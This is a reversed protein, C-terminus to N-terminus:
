SFLVHRLWGHIIYCISILWPPLHVDGVGLARWCRQDDWSNGRPPGILSRRASFSINNQLFAL